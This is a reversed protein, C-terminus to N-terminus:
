EVPTAEIINPFQSFVPIRYGQTKFDYRQGPKIKSYTDASNFHGQTLSDGVKLVGCDETYIRADSGGDRNTTRDKSEVTCTQHGIHVASAIGMVVSGVILLGVAVMTVWTFTEM